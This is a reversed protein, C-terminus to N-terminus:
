TSPVGIGLGLVPLVHVGFSTPAGWSGSTYASVSLGVRFMGARYAVGALLGNPFLLRTQLGGTVSLGPLASIPHEYTLSQAMVSAGVHFGEWPLRFVVTVQEVFRVLPIAPYTTIMLTDYHLWKGPAESLLDVRDFGFGKWTRGASVASPTTSAAPEQALASSAALAAVLLIVRPAPM